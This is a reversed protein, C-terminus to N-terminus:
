IKTEKVVSLTTFYMGLTEANSQITVMKGLRATTSFFLSISCEFFAENYRMETVINRLANGSIEDTEKIAVM